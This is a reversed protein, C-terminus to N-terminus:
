DVSKITAKESIFNYWCVVTSLEKAGHINPVRVTNDSMKVVGTSPFDNGKDYMLFAISYDRAGPIPISKFEPKGYKAHNELESVCQSRAWDIRNYNNMVDANDACLRYDNKCTPTPPPAATPPKSRSIIVLFLILIIGLLAPIRHKKFPEPRPVAALDSSPVSIEKPIIIPLTSGILYEKPVDDARTWNELADCWVLTDGPSPKQALASKLQRLNIPGIQRGKDWYYWEISM